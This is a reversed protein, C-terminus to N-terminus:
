YVQSLSEKNNSLAPKSSSNIRPKFLYSNIIFDASNKVYSPSM